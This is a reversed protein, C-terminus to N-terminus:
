MEQRLKKCKYAIWKNSDRYTYIATKFCCIYLAQLHLETTFYKGMTDVIRLEFELIDGFFFTVSHKTLFLSPQSPPQCPYDWCKSALSCLRLVSALRPQLTLGQRSSFFSLLTFIGGSTDFDLCNNIKLSKKQLSCSQFRSLKFDSHIKGHM